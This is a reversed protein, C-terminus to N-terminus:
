YPALVNYLYYVICFVMRSGCLKQELRVQGEEVGWSGVMLLKILDLGM